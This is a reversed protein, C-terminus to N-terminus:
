VPMTIREAVNRKNVWKKVEPKGAPQLYL